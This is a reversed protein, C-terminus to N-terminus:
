KWDTIFVPLNDFFRRHDNCLDSLEVSKLLLWLSYKLITNETEGIAIPSVRSSWRANRPRQNVPSSIVPEREPIASGAIDRLAISQNQISWRKTPLHQGPVERLSLREIPEKIPVTSAYEYRTGSQPLYRVIYFEDGPHIRTSLRQLLDM